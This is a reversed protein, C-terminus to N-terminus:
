NNQGCMLFTVLASMFIGHSVALVTKGSFDESRAMEKFTQLALKARAILEEKTERRDMKFWGDETM